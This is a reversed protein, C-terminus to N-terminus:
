TISVDKEQVEMELERIRKRLGLVETESYRCETEKNTGLSNGAVTTQKFIDEGKPDIYLGVM